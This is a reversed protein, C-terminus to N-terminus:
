IVASKERARGAEMVQLIDHVHTASFKGLERFTPKYDFNSVKGRLDLAVALLSMAGEM